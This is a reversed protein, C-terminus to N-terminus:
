VTDTGTSEITYPETAAQVITFLQANVGRAPRFGFAREWMSDSNSKGVYMCREKRTDAARRRATDKRGKAVSDVVFALCQLLFLASKLVTLWGQLCDHLEVKCRRHLKGADSWLRPAKM